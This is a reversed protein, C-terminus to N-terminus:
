AAGQQGAARHRPESYIESSLHKTDPSHSEHEDDHHTALGLYTLCLMTFIYSQVFGVFLEMAVFIIVTLPSADKGLFTFISILIEGILVNFFLRLSLSIVRTIEGFMELIGVFINIPNKANGGFYHLLHNKVGSEKVALYQVTCISIFAMAITGNLDATFPRLLPSGNYEISPGVGPLLGMWNNLLVFFFISTFVPAYKLAKKRSGLSSEAISVVFGAGLELLTVPGKQAKVTVKSAIKILTFGIIIACIWAYLISNTITFPGIKFLEEPAIAIHPGEPAAAEAFYSLLTQM